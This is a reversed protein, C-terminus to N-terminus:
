PTVTTSVSGSLVESILTPFGNRRDQPALLTSSYINYRNLFQVKSILREIEETNVGEQNTLILRKIQYVSDVIQQITLETYKSFHYDIADDVEFAVALENLCLSIIEKFIAADVRSSIRNDGEKLAIFRDHNVTRVQNYVVFSDFTKLNVPLSSIKGINKKTIGEDRSSSTLPAVIATRNDNNKKIVVALHKGNFESNKVPDFMVNYVHGQLIDSYRM